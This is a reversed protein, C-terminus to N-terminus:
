STKNVSMAKILDRFHKRTKLRCLYHNHSTKVSYADWYGSSEQKFMLGQHVFRGGTQESCYYADRLWENTILQDDGSVKPPQAAAEPSDEIECYKWHSVALGNKSTAIVFPCGNGSVVALLKNDHALWPNSLHDRVRCVPRQMADKDTPVRWKKVVPWKFVRDPWDIGVTNSIHSITRDNGGVLYFDYGDKSSRIGETEPWLVKAADLAAQPTIKM